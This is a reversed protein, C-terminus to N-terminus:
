GAHVNCALVPGTHTSVATLPPGAGAVTQAGSMGPTGLVGPTGLPRHSCRALRVHVHRCLQALAETCARLHPGQGEEGSPNGSQESEPSQLGESGGRRHGGVLWGGHPYPRPCRCCPPLAGGRRLAAEVGSPRGGM